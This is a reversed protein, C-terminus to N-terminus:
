YPRCAFMSCGIYILRLASLIMWTDIEWQPITLLALTGSYWSSLVMSAYIKWLSISLLGTYTPMWSYTNSFNGPQFVSGYLPLLTITFIYVKSLDPCADVWLYPPQAEVKSWIYMYIHGNHVENSRCIGLWTKNCLFIEQNAVMNDIEGLWIYVYNSALSLILGIALECGVNHQTASCTKRHDKDLYYQKCGNAIHSQSLVITIAQKSNDTKKIRKLKRDFQAITPSSLFGTPLKYIM